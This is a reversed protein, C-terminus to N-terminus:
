KEPGSKVVCLNITDLKKASAPQAFALAVLGTFTLFAAIAFAMGRLRSPSRLPATM